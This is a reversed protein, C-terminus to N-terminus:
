PNAANRNSIFKTTVLPENNLTIDIFLSGHLSYKPSEEGM